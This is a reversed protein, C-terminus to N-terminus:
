FTRSFGSVVVIASEGAKREGSDTPCGSASLPRRVIENVGASASADQAATFMQAERRFADHARREEARARRAEASFRGHKWRARQSRALGEATRPGTSLGGHMRCRGNRMAPGSVMALVEARHFEFGRSSDLWSAYTTRNRPPQLSERRSPMTQVAKM